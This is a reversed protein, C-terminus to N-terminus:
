TTGGDEKKSIEYDVMVTRTLLSEKECEDCQIEITENDHRWNYDWLDRIISGCHPCEVRDSM